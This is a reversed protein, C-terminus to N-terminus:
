PGGCEQIYKQFAGRAEDYKEAAEKRTAAARSLAQDDMDLALKRANMRRSLEDFRAPDIKKFARFRVANSM